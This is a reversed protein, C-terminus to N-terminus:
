KARSELRGLYAKATAIVERPVGAKQAVQLGYSKSAPGPKVAHLFVIGEGHETADLHVNAVEPIEGALETLEFYHTAFLTFARIKRAIHSACAFALSLGDYTSTGRGIEDMLVLSRDTASNLIVAAETMEVMFTSRGGALDDSAGIRTFIRDFPGIVAAEAPVFSGISALVLILAAQRMYTSKGGMNPGTIVLMRCRDTLELDNPVFPDELMREVVPHRGGTIRLGPQDSLEPQVYRLSVAREALNALVDALALAEAMRKLGALEGALADLLREYLDKELALARDRAGLVKDEFQKLEPTIYREANKVTQRRQYDLPARGSQSRPLEIYYGHVRNYGLRLQSIGSRRREREELELLHADTGTAVSRLEDLAADYGPAVVGGERLLAPPDAVIARALLEHVEPRPALDATAAALLTSDLGALVEGLAPLQGLAARLAALDRPRASRLAVRALVREVDGIGRLIEHLRAHRHSGILAAVAHYRQRLRAQDRLPRRIWRRLERAGMATATRDIVGALTAEERGALSADLELNRRTAADMALAEDRSERALSTLHPLAGKQTDRVYQLLAGAAGLGLTLEECGFGALSTTGFQANLARRATDQEFHWPPREVVHAPVKLVRGEPLLLEAPRLRELEAMLAEAGEGELVSFRGAALDLWALGFHDGVGAVAALLNERRADLLAEDTVTGPTVIRVVEREVPGKGKGVEGVQECIAVPVGQKVLRALYQDLKDVPVGAMPIAAGASEGRQTLVIDLLRAARRADDYFTEYFDGMRYLLLLDPNEAKIRLYQQMMPTHTELGPFLPETAPM